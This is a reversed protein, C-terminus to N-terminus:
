KLSFPQGTANSLESGLIDTLKEGGRTSIWAQGTEDYDFHAAGSFPSSLWIQRMPAHKNIVYQAGTELEITLIGSELDVELYDGLVDEIAEMFDHLAKDARTEFSSTQDVM